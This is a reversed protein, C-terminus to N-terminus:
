AVVHREDIGDGLGNVILMLPGLNSASFQTRSGFAGAYGRLHISDDIDRLNAAATTM